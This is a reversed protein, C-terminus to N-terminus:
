NNGEPLSDEENRGNNSESKIHENKINVSNGQAELPAANTEGEEEEEEEQQEEPDSTCDFGLGELLKDPIGDKLYEDLGDPSRDGEDSEGM